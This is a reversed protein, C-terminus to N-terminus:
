LSLPVAAGGWNPPINAPPMGFSLFDPPTFVPASSPCVGYRESGPEAGLSGRPAAGFGGPRGGEAGGAGGIGPPLGPRLGRRPPSSELGDETAELILM